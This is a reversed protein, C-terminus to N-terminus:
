FSFGAGLSFSFKVKPDMNWFDGETPDLIILPGALFRLFLGNGPKQFRYGVAPFLYIFKDNDIAGFSEHKIVLPIACLSLEPHHENKGGVINLEVPFAVQNKLFSFGIGASYYISKGHAFIRDYKVAYDSGELMYDIFFTNKAPGTYTKQSHAKQVTFLFLLCVLLNLRKGNVNM